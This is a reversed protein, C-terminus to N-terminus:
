GFRGFEHGPDRITGTGAATPTGSIVRTAINFAIGGPLAGVASYTPLPNGSAAPVTISAIATNQTWSQADGTDDTFSPATQAASATHAVTWDASGASNTARIRITGSGVATPTGSLSRTTSDFSIGAPLSGVVAYTPTPTGAAAPVTIPTIATNQVWDQADGTDDTFSPSVAAPTPRALVFIFRDGLGISALLTDMADPTDINVWNGGGPSQATFTIMPAIQVESATQIYIALDSGSGGTNLYAYLDDPDPHDNLRLTGALGGTGVYQIRSLNLTESGDVIDFDGDLLTGSAVWSSQRANDAYLSTANSQQVNGASILVKLVVDQGTDDYDALTLLGIKTVGATLSGAVGPFSATVPLLRAAIKTIAAALSGGTGPFTAAAPLIRAAGKTVAAALVGGVGPFTAAAPLVSAAAKTVGATFSGVAGPFTAAAPLVRAAVKTVVAALSGGVGPLTAAAPLVSATTKTVAVFLSGEVGPFTAAAAHTAASVKTAAAAISGVAGPFTAAAVHDTPIVRALAFIFRDDTALNDLLTRAAAPLTLNLWNGGANLFTDAVAFRVLGDSQTQLYVTLDRGDGSTGFFTNFNLAVPSNSDNLTLNATSARRLRDIVTEGPGIGLEGEIPTGTASGGRSIDVYFNNGATGPGSAELLAALRVDLGSDDWDALSLPASTNRVAVALSGGVGPFAAAAPLLRVSLQTVAAALGGGVGPFAAATTLLRAAVKTVTAVLIGAAGPFTAAAPLVSATAKTVGVTLAGGVGPFTAAVPLLRAAIKTISANFGGGVGPFAAAIPLLNATSKTVGAALSGGVGPFTAAASLVSASSTTVGM